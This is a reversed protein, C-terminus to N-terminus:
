RREGGGLGRAKRVAEAGEASSIDYIKTQVPRTLLPTLGLLVGFVDSRLHDDLADRSQWEEVIEFSSPDESEHLLECRSCGKERRIAMVLSALTQFVEPRKEPAASMNLKALIM